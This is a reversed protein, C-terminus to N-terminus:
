ENIKKFAYGLLIWFLPAVMIVSINAFAQILYALIGLMIIVFDENKRKYYLKYLAKNLLMM